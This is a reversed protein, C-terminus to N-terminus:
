TTTRVQHLGSFDFDAPRANENEAMTDIMTEMLGALGQFASDLGAESGNGGTVTDDETCGYILFLAMIFLLLYWRLLRSNM